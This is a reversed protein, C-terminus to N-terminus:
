KIGDNKRKKSERILAMIRMKEKTKKTHKYGSHCTIMHEGSNHFLILNDINNNSRNGDIHHICEDGQLYRDIKKEIVLIHEAIYGRKNKKSVKTKPHEPTLVYVYGNGMQTKGGKWNYHKDKQIKPIQKGESPFKGSKFHKLLEKRPMGKNWPIRPLKLYCARCRKSKYYGIEKKCDCCYYYKEKQRYIGKKSAIYFCERCRKRNRSPSSIIEKGCDMCNIRM